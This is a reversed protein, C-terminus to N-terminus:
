TDSVPYSATGVLVRREGVACTLECQVRGDVVANVAANMQVVDGVFVPGVFKVELQGGHQWPPGIEAQLADSLVGLVLLGHAIPRGYPTTAAFQPDVHIPNHDQSADAYLDIQTQVATWNRTPMLPGAPVTIM